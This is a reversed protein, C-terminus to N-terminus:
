AHHGNGGRNVAAPDAPRGRGDLHFEIARRM